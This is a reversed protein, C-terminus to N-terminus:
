TDGDTLALISPGREELEQYLTRQPGTLMYPLMAEALTAQEAEVLSLQARVWDRVIAWAARKAQDLNKSIHGKPPDRRLAELIPEPKAPLRFGLDQGHLRLGFTLAVPEGDEYDVMIRSAGARALHKQIAAISDEVSVKSTYNAIPM